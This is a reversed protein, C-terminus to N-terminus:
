GGAAVTRAGLAGAIVYAATGVAAAAVWAWWGGPPVWSAHGIFRWGLGPGAVVKANAYWAVAHVVAATGTLGLLLGAAARDGLRARHRRLLEGAWLPVVILYPLVYRTQLEFGTQRYVASVVLTVGIAAGVLALLSWAARRGGAVAAAGLLVVFMAWWAIYASLPPYADFAGFVGVAEKPINLLADFSPGIGDFIAAPGSSVHPQYSLEWVLGAAACLVIAGGAVLARRRSGALASFSARPGALAVV